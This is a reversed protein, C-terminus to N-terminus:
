ADIICGTANTEMQAYPSLGDIMASGEIDMSFITSYERRETPTTGHARSIDTPRYREM